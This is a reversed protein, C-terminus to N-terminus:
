LKVNFYNQLFEKPDVRGFMGSQYYEYQKMSKYFLTGVFVDYISNTREKKDFFIKANNIWFKLWKPNKKFFEKRKRNSMLPCGQCGLRREVHFNGNEDYYLPHCKINRLKVFEAIDKDEWYLIPFIQYVKEQKNYYRCQTPEAYRKNRKISEAKRVGIICTDLVKYEKLIGCCIRKKRRNPFGKKQLIERMTEKPKLIEVGKSKAHAITGKPDITTCKYIARFNIGAMKCLELCVDSDKGGSYALEVVGRNKTTTQLLKIAKKIKEQLDM